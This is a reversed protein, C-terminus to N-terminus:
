MRAEFSCNNCHYMQVPILWAFPTKRPGPHIARDAYNTFPQTNRSGCRSCVVGDFDLVFTACEFTAADFTTSTFTPTVYTM